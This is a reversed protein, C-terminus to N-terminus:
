AGSRRSITGSPTQSCITSSRAHRTSQPHKELGYAVIAILDGAITSIKSDKYTADKQTVPDIAVRDVVEIKYKATPGTWDALSGAASITDVKKDFRNIQAFDNDGGGVYFAGEKGTGIVFVNEGPSGNLTDVLKGTNAGTTAAVGNSLKGLDNADATISVFGNADVTAGTVAVGTLVSKGSFGNVSNAIGKGATNLTGNFLALNGSTSFEGVKVLYDYASKYLGSDVLGKVKPNQELYFKENFTSRFLM